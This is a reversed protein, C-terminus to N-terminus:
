NYIWFLVPKNSNKLIEDLEMFANNSIAPCGWGEPTGQPYTETDSVMEWSHFVIIRKLANSNSDDLGHMLYKKHVGWSSYGREGLKYKGLSTKHSDIQNSFLPNEKTNDKGWQNEGCGHSVLFSKTIKKSKLDWLLLRKIGSHLSMDVLICFDTNLNNQMCFTLAEEAKLTTKALSVKPITSHEEKNNKSCSFCLIFLLLLIPQLKKM